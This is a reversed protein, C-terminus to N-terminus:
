RKGGFLYSLSPYLGPYYMNKQYARVRTLLLICYFRFFISIFFMIQFGAYSDGFFIFTKKNFFDAVFGGSIAGVFGFIGIAIAYASTYSDKPSESLEFLLNLIALNIAAWGVATGIADLILLSRVNDKTMLFYFIVVYTSINIGFSLLKKYGIRPALKGYIFFMIISIFAGVSSAIGLYFYPANLNVVAYYFFYPKTFEITFNWMGIFLLFNRFNSNKLPISLNFSIKKDKFDPVDHLNLLFLTSIAAVAITGTLVLMGTKPSTINIVKSIVTSFVITTISILIYRTSFFHSRDNKEIIEGVATTWIGSVFSAFISYIIIIGVLVKYNTYNFLVAFFLAVFPLRSLIATGILASKRTPFFLYIKGLFLQLLQAGVPLTSIMSIWFPECEFYLALATLSFSQIGLTMINASMGEASILVKNKEYSSKFFM